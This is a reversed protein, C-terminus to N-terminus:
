ATDPQMASADPHLAQEFAEAMERFIIPKMVLKRIGAKKITEYSLKNSFGTCLVVPLDPRIAILQESLEIGTMKPMTMDTMVLQFSDPRAKFIELAEPSSTTAIVEYGFQQLMEKGTRILLQDDDVLLIKGKGTAPSLTPSVTGTTTRHHQPFLVKFCAGNDPESTVSVHGNIDEMIEKVVALGMGNGEAKPKTTFAPMFVKEIIEPLIGCGTDAVSLSICDDQPLGQGPQTKDSRAPLAELSISLMGGTDKMAHAANNCLNMLLQRIQAPSATVVSDSIDSVFEIEITSPLTSKLFKITEKILPILELSRKDSDELHSFESIQKVLERARLGANLIEDLYKEIDKGSPLGLLSLETFCLIPSLINNL